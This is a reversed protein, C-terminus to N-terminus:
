HADVLVTLIDLEPECVTAVFLLRDLDVELIDFREGRQKL